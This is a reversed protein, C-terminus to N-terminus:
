FKIRFDFHQKKNNKLEEKKNPNKYNTFLDAIKDNNENEILQLINSHIYKMEEIYKKIDSAKEPSNNNPEM